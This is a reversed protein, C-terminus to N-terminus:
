FFPPIQYLESEKQLLNRPQHSAPYCRIGTDYIGECNRHRRMFTSVFICCQHSLDKGVNCHVCLLRWSQTGRICCM